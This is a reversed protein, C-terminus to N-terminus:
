WSQHDPTDWLASARRHWSSSTSTCQRPPLCVRRWCHQPDSAAARADVVRRSLATWTVTLLCNQNLQVTVTATRYGADLRRCCCCVIQSLLLYTCTLGSASGLHVFDMYKHIMQMCIFICVSRITRRTLCPRGHIYVIFLIRGLVSGRSCQLYSSDDVQSLWPPRISPEDLWISSSGGSASAM